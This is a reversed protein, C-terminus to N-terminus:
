LSNTKIRVSDPFFAAFSDANASETAEDMALPEPQDGWTTMEGRRPELRDLGFADNALKRDKAMRRRDKAKPEHEYVSTATGGMGELRGMVTDVDADLAGGLHELGTRPFRELADRVATSDQGHKLMYDGARKMWWRRRAALEEDPPPEEEHDHMLWRPMERDDDREEEEDGLDPDGDTPGKDWEREAGPNDRMVEGIDSDRARKKGDYAMKTADLLSEDLGLARLAERPTKFKKKLANALAGM